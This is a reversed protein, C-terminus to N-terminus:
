PSLNQFMIGLRTILAALIFYGIVIHITVCIFAPYDLGETALDTISFVMLNTQMVATVIDPTNLITTSANELIPSSQLPLVFQYIFAWLINWAFFIGIVRITSSGYDTLCWFLRVFSNIITDIFSGKTEWKHQEDKIKKSNLNPTDNTVPHLICWMDWLIKSIKGLYLYFKPKEYWKEWHIERINRVLRTRLNPDIRTASLATGTFDTHKDITNETFLTEGDVITYIFQAEDLHAFMFDAGELYAMLFNAKKLDAGVFNAVELHAGEFNAGKLDTLCIIAGELHIGIFRVGRSIAEQFDKSSFNPRNFESDRKVLAFVNETDWERKPYLRKWESELYELYLANWEDIRKNEACEILFDFSLKEYLEQNWVEPRKDM